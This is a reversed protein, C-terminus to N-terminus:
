REPRYDVCSFWFHAERELYSTKFVTPQYAYPILPEYHCGRSVMVRASNALYCQEFQLILLNRIYDDYAIQQGIPM